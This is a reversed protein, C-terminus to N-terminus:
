AAQAVDIVGFCEPHTTGADGPESGPEGALRHGATSRQDVKANVNQVHCEPDEAIRRWTAHARCGIGLESRTSATLPLAASEFNSRTHGVLDFVEGSRENAKVPLQRQLQISRPGGVRSM